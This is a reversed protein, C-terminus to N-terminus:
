QNFSLSLKANVPVLSGRNWTLLLSDSKWDSGSKQLAEDSMEADSMKTTQPRTTMWRTVDDRTESANQRTEIGLVKASAVVFPMWRSAFRSPSKTQNPKFKKFVEFFFQAKQGRSARRQRDSKEPGNRPSKRGNQLM